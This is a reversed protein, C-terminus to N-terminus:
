QFDGAVLAPIAIRERRPIPGIPPRPLDGGKGASHRLGVPPNVQTSLM